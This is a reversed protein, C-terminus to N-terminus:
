LVTVLNVDIKYCSKSQEWILYTLLQSKSSNENILVTPLSFVLEICGEEYKEFHLIASNDFGLFRALNKQIAKVENGTVEVPVKLLLDTRSQDRSSIFPIEFVSHKLYPVLHKDEYTTLYKKETDNNLIEIIVQLSEYNFWTCHSAVETFVIGISDDKSFNFTKSTCFSNALTQVDTPDVHRKTLSCKLQYVFFTYAKRVDCNEDRLKNIIREKECPTYNQWNPYNEKSKHPNFHCIESNSKSVAKRSLYSLISDAVAENKMGLFAKVLEIFTAARNKEAKWAYLVAVKRKVDDEDSQSIITMQRQSLNLGRGVKQFDDMRELFENFLSDDCVKDLDECSLSCYQSLLNPLGLLWLM